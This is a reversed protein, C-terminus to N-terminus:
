LCKLLPNTCFTHTWPSGVTKCGYEYTWLIQHTIHGWYPWPFLLKHKHFMFGVWKVFIRSMCLQFRFPFDTQCIKNLLGLDYMCSHAWVNLAIKPARGLAECVKPQWYDFVVVLVACDSFGTYFKVAENNLAISQMSFTGQVVPAQEQELLLRELSQVRPRWCCWRWM